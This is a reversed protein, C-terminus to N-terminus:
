GGAGTSNGLPIKKDFELLLKVDAFLKNTSQYHVHLMPPQGRGAPKIIDIHDKVTSDNFRSINTISIARLFSKRIEVVSTTASDPQSAVSNMAAEIQFKENYLPFLRLVFVTVLAIIGLVLVLGIFTM